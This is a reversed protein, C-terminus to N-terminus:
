RNTKASDPPVLSVQDGQDLGSIIEVQLDNDRGISVAVKQLGLATTRYCFTKGDNDRFVAQVPLLLVNQASEAKILVRATMGPRLRLDQGNLTLILQFYKGGGHGPQEEAALAGISQVEATFTLAPYADIRVAAQQGIKVKYLDVERVQTRVIFKKIDPLYLIPQNMLVTDGVRPKRKQGDRFAKYLIAIGAFPARIVSKELERRALALSSRVTATKARAQALDATVNAVKFVAAKRTQELILRSNQVKAKAAEQLSPLVFDRYSTFRRRAAECKDKYTAANQRARSVEAPNKFGEKELKKLERSFSSYRDQEARAKEMEERYQALQLPGEGNVLRELDLEAVKLDYERAAIKQAAQNEEWSVLQRVSEVAAELSEVKGQLRHVEEEFPSPDLRVLEADKEVWSGDRVLAIIKGKNGRIESSVMHSKAADLLGITHISVSLDGRKVTSLLPDADPTTQGGELSFLFVAALLVVVFVLFTQKSAIM